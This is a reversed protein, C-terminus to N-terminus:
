RPSPSRAARPTTDNELVPVSVKGGARVEVVDANAVPPQDVTASETVAVVVVASM